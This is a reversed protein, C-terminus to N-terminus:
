RDRSTFEIRDPPTLLPLVYAKLYTLSLTGAHGGENGSWVVCADWRHQRLRAALPEEGPCLVPPQFGVRGSATQRTGDATGVVATGLGLWVTDRKSIFVDVGQRASVLTRRLDYGVSVAPALLIIREVTDPPLRDGAALAVACGASYAVLYVPVGPQNRRIGIIEEALLAGQCNSYDADIIDALIRGRGHTWDFSRVYLPLRLEDVATTVAHPATQYGGAGDVVIVIGRVATPPARSEVRAPVGACGPALPLVLLFYKFGRLPSEM